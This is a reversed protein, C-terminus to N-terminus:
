CWRRTRRSRRSTPCPGCTPVCARASRPSSMCEMLGLDDDVRHRLRHVDGTEGDVAAPPRKRAPLPQPPASAEPAVTAEPAADSPPVSAAVTAPVPDPAPRKSGATPAGKGACAFQARLKAAVDPLLLFNRSGIPVEVFGEWQSPRLSDISDINAHRLSGLAVQKIGDVGADLVGHASTTGFLVGTDGDTLDVAPVGKALRAPAECADARKQPFPVDELRFIEYTDLVVCLKPDSLMVGPCDGTPTSVTVRLVSSPM